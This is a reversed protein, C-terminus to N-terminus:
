CTNVVSGDCGECQADADSLNQQIYLLEHAKVDAITPNSSLDEHHFCLVKGGSGSVRSLKSHTKNSVRNQIIFFRLLRPNSGLHEHPLSLHNEALYPLMCSQFMQFVSTFWSVLM